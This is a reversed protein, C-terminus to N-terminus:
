LQDIIYRAREALVAKQWERIVGRGAERANEGDDNYQEMNANLADTFRQLYQNELDDETETAYEKSEIYHLFFYTAWKEEKIKGTYFSPFSVNDVFSQIFKQPQINYISCLSIFDEPVNLNLTTEM